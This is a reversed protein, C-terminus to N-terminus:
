FRRRGMEEADVAVVPGKDELQRSALEVMGFVGGGVALLVLLWFAINRWAQKLERRQKEKMREQQRLTQREQKTPQTEM